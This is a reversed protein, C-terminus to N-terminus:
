LMIRCYFVISCQFDIFSSRCAPIHNSTGPHGLWNLMRSKTKAQTMTERNTLDLGASPETSGTCLRSPIREGMERQGQRVWVHERGREWFLYVKFFKLFSITLKEWLTTNGSVFYYMSYSKMQMFNLYLCILRQNYFEAHNYNSCHYHSSSPVPM